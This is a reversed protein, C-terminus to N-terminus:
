QYRRKGQRDSKETREEKESGASGRVKYGYKKCFDADKLRVNITGKQWKERDRWSSRGVNRYGYKELRGRQEQGQGRM